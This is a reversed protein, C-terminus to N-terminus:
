VPEFVYDPAGQLMRTSNLSKLSTIAIGFKCRSSTNVVNKTVEDPVPCRLAFNKDSEPVLRARPM